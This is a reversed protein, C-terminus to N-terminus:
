EGFPYEKLPTIVGDKVTFVTISVVKLDGKEDFVLRGTVGTYPTARIMDALAKRGIVLNGDADVTAVKEAAQLLITASDFSGPGYAVPDGGFKANFKATFDEVGTAGAVAGFTMFAGEAAAGAADAFSPQSKIGDPGFFVGDFGAQGLQVVLKVGEADMGGFYVAEPTDSNVNTVVASYDSEGRTIGEFATVTGGAEEFKKQVAAAIGEGYISQDHLVALSRLGLENFLYDVTVTAQLEDNAVTRFVNQFGQATVAVATSSPTIMIVNNAGYIDEAPVASGSCMPGVVGLIAPDASFKEAVTVGAAGECLDDQGEAALKWGKLSGGFEDIALNVGNLMDTGYVAYGGSLASSLGVKVTDGPKFVLSGWEDEPAATPSTNGDAPATTASPAAAQGCASLLLATITLLIIFARNKMKNKELMSKEFSRAM